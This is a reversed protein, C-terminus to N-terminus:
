VFARFRSLLQDMQLQNNVRHARFDYGNVLIAAQLGSRLPRFYDSLITAYIPNAIRCSGDPAKAIIGHM